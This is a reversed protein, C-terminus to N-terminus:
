SRDRADGRREDALRVGEKVIVVIAMVAQGLAFLLNTDPLFVGLVARGLVLIALTFAARDWFWERLFAEM